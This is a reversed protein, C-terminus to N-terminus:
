GKHDSIMFKALSRVSLSPDFLFESVIKKYKPNSQDFKIIGRLAVRKVIASRDKLGLTYMEDRDITVSLPRKEIRPEWCGVRMYKNIERWRRGAVFHAELEILANLAIARVGPNIANHALSKLHGDIEPFQIVKTLVSPIPGTRETELLYALDAIVDERRLQDLVLAREQEGWRGWSEQVCLTSLYFHAIVKANTLEFCRRVCEAASKRVQTSWDNLRWVIAAVIFSNPLPGQILNLAEERLYGNRHFVFLYELNPTELLRQNDNKKQLFMRQLISPDHVRRDLGAAYAIEVDADAVKKPAIGDFHSLVQELTERLDVGSEFDNRFKSLATQLSTNLIKSM